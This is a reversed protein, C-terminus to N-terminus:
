WADGGAPPMNGNAARRRAELAIRAKLFKAPEDRIRNLWQETAQESELRTRMGAVQDPQPTAEGDSGGSANDAADTEGGTGAIDNQGAM